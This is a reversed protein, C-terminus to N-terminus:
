EMAWVECPRCELECQAQRCDTPGFHCRIPGSRHEHLSEEMSETSVGHALQSVVAATAVFPHLNVWALLSGTGQLSIDM